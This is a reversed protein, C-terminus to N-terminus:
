MCGIFVLLQSIIIIFFFELCNADDSIMSDLSFAFEWFILVYIKNM